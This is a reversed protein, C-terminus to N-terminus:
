STVFEGGDVGIVNGTMWQTDPRALLAIAKAVDEPQTLRRSPNQALAKSLLQENGPIKRLAPTDTVGARICNATIGYPSLELTIQRIHSELAAKAASVAGYYPMVKSSGSSTLAFIRSGHGLLGKHFLTQVWYVLSHAMIHLTSEMQRQTIPPDDADLSFYPRLSGFALSHVVVRLMDPEAPSSLTAQITQTIEEIHEPNGADMNFFIARRSLSEIREKISLANSLTARRDLHVGFINMGQEALEVATAAGFGSSCGLILAWEGDLPNTGKDM